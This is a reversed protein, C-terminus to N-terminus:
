HEGEIIGQGIQLDEEYENLKDINAQGHLTSSIHLKNVFTPNMVAGILIKGFPILQAGATAVMQGNVNFGELLYTGVADLHVKTRQEM